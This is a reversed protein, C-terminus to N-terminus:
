CRTGSSVRRSGGSSRLRRLQGGGSGDLRGAVPIGAPWRPGAPAGGEGTLKGALFDGGFRRRAGIFPGARSGVEGRVV